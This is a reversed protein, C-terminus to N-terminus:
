AGIPIDSVSKLLITEGAILLGFLWPFTNTDIDQFFDKQKEIGNSTWEHTNSIIAADDSLLFLYTREAGTLRGIAALASDINEDINDPRSVFDASIESITSRWILQREREEDAWMKEM